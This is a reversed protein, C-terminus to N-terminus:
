VTWPRSRTNAPISIDRDVINRRGASLTLGSLGDKGGCIEVTVKYRGVHETHVGFRLPYSESSIEVGEPCDRRTVREEERGKGGPIWGATGTYFDEGACDEREPLFGAGAEQTYLESAWLRKLTGNETANEFCQDTFRYEAM